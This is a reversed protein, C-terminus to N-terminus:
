FLFDFPFNRRNIFNFTGRKWIAEIVCAFWKKKLYSQPSVRGGCVM